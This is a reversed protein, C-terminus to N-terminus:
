VKVFQMVKSLPKLWRTYLRPKLNNVKWARADERNAIIRNRLTVNSQGGVRMKVMTAPLYQTKIKHRLIFRLMLEYDASTFFSLDYLGFKEFCEKKAFFTPHAPMWGRYFLREHYAESKWSRVVQTPDEKDVYDLDGYVADINNQAFSEAVQSIISNDAFFDDSHLIGVVDGNAHNIGKNLADYIGQDPESYFQVRENSNARVIDSTRDSSAGDVIIHEIDQYDQSRVSDLAHQITKESNYTATIISIKM